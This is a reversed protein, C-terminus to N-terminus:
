TADSAAGEPLHAEIVARIEAIPPTRSFSATTVFVCVFEGAFCRTGDQFGVVEFRISTDGLRLPRVACELVHRPTVPALFDMSMHVFPTSYGRDANLRFWDYGVVAAWWADIAELAFNPIRGTYAIFAPDCDAWRVTIPHVFGSAADSAVQPDTPRLM